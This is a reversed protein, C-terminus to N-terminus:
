FAKKKRKKHNNKRKLFSCENDYVAHAQNTLKREKSMKRFICLQLKQAFLSKHVVSSFLFLLLIMPSFICFPWFHSSSERNFSLERVKNEQSIFSSKFHHSRSTRETEFKVFSFDRFSTFVLFYFLAKIGMKFMQQCNKQDDLFFFLFLFHGIVKVWIPIVLVCSMIAHHHRRCRHPTQIKVWYLVLGHDHSSHVRKGMQEMKSGSFEQIKKGKLKM